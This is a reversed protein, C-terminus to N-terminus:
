RRGAPAAQGGGAGDLVVPALLAVPTVLLIREARANRIQGHWTRGIPLVTSYAM